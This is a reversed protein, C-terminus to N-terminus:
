AQRTEHGPPHSLTSGLSLGEVEGHGSRHLLGMGERHPARKTQGGDLRAASHAPLLFPGGSKAFHAKWVVCLLLLM